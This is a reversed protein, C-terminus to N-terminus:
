VENELYYNFTKLGVDKPDSIKMYNSVANFQEVDIEYSVNVVNNQPVPKTPRVTEPAHFKTETITKVALDRLPMSKAIDLKKETPSLPQNKGRGQGDKEDKIKNLFANISM